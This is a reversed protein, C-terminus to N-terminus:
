QGGLINFLSVIEIKHLKCLPLKHKYREIIENFRCNTRQVRCLENYDLFKLVELLTEAASDGFNVSM